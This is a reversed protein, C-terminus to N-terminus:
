MTSLNRLIGYQQRQMSKQEYHKIKNDHKNEKLKIKRISVSQEKNSNTYTILWIQTQIYFVNQPM